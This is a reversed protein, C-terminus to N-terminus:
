SVTVRMSNSPGSRNGATDVAQVNITYTHGAFVHCFRVLDYVKVSTVRPRYAQAGDVQVRYHSITGEQDASADWELVPQGGSTGVVRLNAPATPPDTDAAWAQPALALMGAAAATVSVALRTRM